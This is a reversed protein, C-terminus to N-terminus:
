DSKTPKAGRPAQKQQLARPKKSAPAPTDVVDARALDDRSPIIELGGALWIRATAHRMKYARRIQAAQSRRLPLEHGQADTVVVPIPEAWEDALLNLRAAAGPV